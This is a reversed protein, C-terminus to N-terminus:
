SFCQLIGVKVLSSKKNQLVDMVRMWELVWGIDDKNSAGDYISTKDGWWM